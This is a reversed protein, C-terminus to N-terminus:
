KGGWTADGPTTVEFWTQGPNLKVPSGTADKLRLPALVGSKSWSGRVIGGDEFILAKGKGVVGVAVRAEADNPIPAISTYLLVVNSTEVPRNALRDIAPVGGVSRVYLDQAREFRYDVAYDPPSSINPTSFNIRIHSIHGREAKPAPTKHALWAYSVRHNWANRVAIARVGDTSGFLNHPSIRDSERHFEPRPLLAEVNGLQPTLYLLQLAAPSGGAHVFLARYGAAWKVFYPRASRIPGIQSADHELFVGMLRTIGGEALTEFVLSARNLGAQPRADPYLNDIVAAIPRRLAIRRQTPEGNLPGPVINPVVTAKTSVHIPTPTVTGTLHPSAAVSGVVLAALGAVAFILILARAEGPIVSVFARQRRAM